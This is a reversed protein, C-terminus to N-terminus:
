KLLKNLRAESMQESYLQKEKGGNKYIWTAPISGSWASDVQDIWPGSLSENLLFVTKPLGFKEILPTLSTSYDEKSDLSVFLVKIKKTGINQSFSVFDPLEKL